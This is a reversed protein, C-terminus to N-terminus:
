GFGGLGTVGGVAGCVGCGKGEMEAEEKPGARRFAVVGALARDGGGTDGAILGDLLEVTFPRELPEKAHLLWEADEEADEIAVCMVRAKFGKPMFEGGCVREHRVVAEEAVKADHAPEPAGNEM